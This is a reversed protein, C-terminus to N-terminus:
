RTTPNTPHDARYPGRLQRYLRSLATSGGAVARAARYQDARVPLLHPQTPSRPRCARSSRPDAIHACIFGTSTRHPGGPSPAQAVLAARPRPHVRDARRSLRDRFVRTGRVLVGQDQRVDIRVPRSDTVAIRTVATPSSQSSHGHVRSGPNPPPCESGCQRVVEPRLRYPKSRALWSPAFAGGPLDRARPAPRFCRHPRPRSGGSRCHRHRRDRPGCARDRRREGAGRV